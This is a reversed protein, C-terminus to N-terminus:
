VELSCNESGGGILRANEDQVMRLKIQLEKIRARLEQELNERGANQIRLQELELTKEDLQKQNEEFM